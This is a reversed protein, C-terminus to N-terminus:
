PNCAVIVYQRLNDFLFSRRDSQLIKKYRSFSRETDVSTIMAYTACKMEELTWQEPMEQWVNSQICEDVITMSRYGVNNNLVNVMKMKVIEPVEPNNRVRESVTRLREIATHLTINKSELQEIAHILCEFNTAITQFEEHLGPQGFAEQARHVVDADPVLENIIDRVEPFNLSYYIAAKIWSGWRTIIPEPPLQLDPARLNFLAVRRPAKTFALKGNAIAFDANAYLSRVKEAVRHLGHALCTVHVMKPFYASLVDGALAMYPAADSVFMLVKDFQIGEPWLLLLSDQLFRVITLHNTAALVACNLLRSKGPGDPLLPTVVAHAVLRRDVDTTEDVSIWIRNDGVEERIMRMKEEFVIKVYAKRLTSADPIIQQTWYELFRHFESNYLKELPIDAALMADCLEKFFASQRSRCSDWSSASAHPMQARLEAAKRHRPSNDHRNIHARTITHLTVHCYHCKVINDGLEYVGPQLFLEECIRLWLNILIQRNGRQERMRAEHQERRRELRRAQNAQRHIARQMM